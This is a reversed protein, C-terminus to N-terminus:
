LLARIKTENIEYNTFNKFPTTSTILVISGSDTAFDLLEIVELLSKKDFYSHFDDIMLLHPYQLIGRLIETKKQESYSISSVKSGLCHELGIMEALELTRRKEDKRVKKFPLLLNTLVSKDSLFYNDRDVLVITNSNKIQNNNLM